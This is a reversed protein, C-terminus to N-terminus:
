LDLGGLIDDHIDTNDNIKEEKGLSSFNKKGKDETKFILNMVADERMKEDENEKNEIISKQENIILESLNLSSKISDAIKEHDIVINTNQQPKNELLISKLEDFQKTLSDLSLSNTDPVIKEIEVINNHSFERKIDLDLELERVTKNTASVLDIVQHAALKIKFKAINLMNNRNNKVIWKEQM